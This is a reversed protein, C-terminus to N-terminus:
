YLTLQVLYNVSSMNYELIVIRKSMTNESPRLPNSSVTGQPMEQVNGIIGYKRILRTQNGSIEPMNCNQTTQVIIVAGILSVNCDLYHFKSYTCRHRLLTTPHFLFHMLRQHIKM